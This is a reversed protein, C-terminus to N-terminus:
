SGLYLVLSGNELIFFENDISYYSIDEFSSYHFAFFEYPFAIDKVVERSLDLLNTLRILVRYYILALIEKYSIM